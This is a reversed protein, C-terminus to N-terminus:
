RRGKGQRHGDAEGRGPAGGAHRVPPEESGRNQEKGHIHKKIKGVLRITDKLEEPLRHYTNRAMIDRRTILHLNELECNLRNGDKFSVIYGDPVKGYAKEWVLRHKHAYKGISVRVEIYGEVNVREYGDHKVNHPINGKPYWHKSLALRTKESVPKGAQAPVHGKKFRSRAGLIRLKDAEIALMKKMYEPSKKLGLQSAVGYVGAYTRGFMEALEATGTDPYLARLKNKEDATWKAGM